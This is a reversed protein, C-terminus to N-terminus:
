QGGATDTDDQLHLWSSFATRGDSSYCNRQSWDALETVLERQDSDSLTLHKKSFSALVAVTTEPSPFPTDQCPLLLIIMIIPLYKINM